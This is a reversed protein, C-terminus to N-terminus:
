ERVESELTWLSVWFSRLCFAFAGENAFRANGEKGRSRQRLQRSLEEFEIPESHQRSKTIKECGITLIVTIGSQTVANM